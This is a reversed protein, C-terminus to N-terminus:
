GGCLLCRIIYGALV